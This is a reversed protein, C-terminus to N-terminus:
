KPLFNSLKLHFSITEFLISDSEKQFAIKNGNKYFSLIKEKTLGNVFSFHPNSNDFFVPINKETYYKLIYDEIELYLNQTESIQVNLFNANEILKTQLLVKCYMENTRQKEESKVLDPSHYTLNNISENLTKCKQFYNSHTSINSYHKLNLKQLNKIQRINKNIFRGLM